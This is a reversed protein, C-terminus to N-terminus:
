HFCVYLCTHIRIVISSSFAVRYLAVLFLHCSVRTRWLSYCYVGGLPLPQQFYYQLPLFIRALLHLLGVLLVSCSLLLLLFVLLVAPLVLPGPIHDQAWPLQSGFCSGM